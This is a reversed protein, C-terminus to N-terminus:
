KKSARSTKASKASKKAKPSDAPEPRKKPAAAKLPKASARPAKKARPKRAASAKAAARAADHVDRIRRSLAILEPGYDALRAPGIGPADELRTFSTPLEQALFSLSLDPLIHREARGSDAACASRWSEFAERSDDKENMSEVRNLAAAIRAAARHADDM